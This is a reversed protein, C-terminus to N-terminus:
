LIKNCIVLFEWQNFQVSSDLLHKSCESLARIHLLYAKNSYIFKMVTSLCRKVKDSIDMYIRTFAYITLM